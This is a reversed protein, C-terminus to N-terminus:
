ATTSPPSETTLIVGAGIWEDTERALTCVRMFHPYSATKRDTCFTKRCAEFIALQAWKKQVQVGARKVIPPTPGFPTKVLVIPGGPRRSTPGKSPRERAAESGCLAVGGAPVQGGPTPGKRRAAQRERWLPSRCFNFTICSKISM